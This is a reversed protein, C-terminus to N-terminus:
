EDPSYVPNSVYLFTDYELVRSNSLTANVRVRVRQGNTAATTGGTSGTLLSVFALATAVTTVASVVQATIDVNSTNVAGATISSISSGSAMGDTFDIQYSPKDLGVKGFLGFNDQGARYTFQRM